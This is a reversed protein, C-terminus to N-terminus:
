NVTVNVITTQTISGSTGTVTVAYTGATTGPNSTSGGSGSSSGGGCGIGAVSVVLLLLGLMSLWKRRRAPIGFLFVLALAAGGASPWFLKRTQNLATSAATTSVTLTATQAATSGVAVSTPISCTMPDSAATPTIACSLSVTGTFGGSPTVSITATNGTTAGRSVTINGSNTLAFSGIGSSPTAMTVTVLVTETINGSTGTVTVVYTGGTTTNTSSITLTKSVPTAASLSASSPINCTVPNTASTPSTTVACQLSVTGTFGNLPTVGVTTTNGTTAGPILSVNTASLAFTATPAGVPWANVVNAVNLSGLGTALDYGTSAGYGALLGAQDGSYLVTCNPSGTMCPVAITGTDIDNFYCSSSTTASETKCSSYTQQAALTYLQANPSGQAAGAKQNILAMVGAMAPSSASTGGIEQTTPETTTTTSSVCTGNASVCILYASGLFGNSAFFSVDPIDRKGDPPIGAVGTQWSPKAYGGSCSAVTSGNSTTCASVGGSGGTIDV